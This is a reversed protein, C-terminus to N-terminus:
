GSRRFITVSTVNNLEVYVNTQFDIEGGPVPVMIGGAAAPSDVDFKM